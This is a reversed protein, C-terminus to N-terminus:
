STKKYIKNIKLSTNPGMDLVSSKCGDLNIQVTYHVIIVLPRGFKILITHQLKKIVKLVAKSLKKNIKLITKPGM